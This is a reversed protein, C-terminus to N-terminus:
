PIGHLLLIWSNPWKPYIGSNTEKFGEGKEGQTHTLINLIRFFFHLLSIWFVYIMQDKLDPHVAFYM